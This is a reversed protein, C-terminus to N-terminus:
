SGQPRLAEYLASLDDDEHGFDIARRMYDLLLQPVKPDVGADVNSQVFQEAWSRWISLSANGSPYDRSAVGAYIGELLSRDFYPLTAFLEEANVSEASLLALANYMVMSTGCIVGLHAFDLAAAHGMEAGCYISTGVLEELLSRCAEFVESEGTYYITGADTGIQKPGASMTGDLYSLGVSVAWTAAARAREPTGTSLQVLTKGALAPEVDRTRLLADSTDYNLVCVIVIDSARCAEEVSEAARARGEFSHTKELTRNWVTVRHGSVILAEAIASGMRGLGVVTISRDGMIVGEKRWRTGDSTVYM